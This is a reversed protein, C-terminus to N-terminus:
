TLILGQHLGIKIFFDSTLGDYNQYKDSSTCIKKTLINLPVGKKM